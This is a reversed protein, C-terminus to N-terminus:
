DTGFKSSHPGYLLGNPTGAPLLKHNALGAADVSEDSVTKAAQKVAAAALNVFGGGQVGANVSGTRRRDRKELRDM